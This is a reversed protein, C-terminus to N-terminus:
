LPAWNVSAIAIVSALGIVAILLFFTAIIKLRRKRVPVVFRAVLMAAYLTAIAVIAAVALGPPPLTALVALMAISIGAFFAGVILWSSGSATTLAPQNRM